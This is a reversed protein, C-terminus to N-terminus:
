KVLMVVVLAVMEELVRVLAVLEEVTGVLAVVRDVVGMIAVDSSSSSFITRLAKGKHRSDIDREQTANSIRRSVRRNIVSDDEHVTGRGEENPPLGEWKRDIVEWYKEWQKVSAKITLKARDM